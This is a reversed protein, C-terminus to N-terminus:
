YRICNDIFISSGDYPYSMGNMSAVPNCCSECAVSNKRTFSSDSQKQLLFRSPSILGCPLISLLVLVPPSPKKLAMHWWQPVDLYHCVNQILIGSSAVVVRPYVLSIFVYDGVRCLKSTTSFLNRSSSCFSSLIVDKTASFDDYAPCCVKRCGASQEEIQQTSWLKHLPKWFHSCMKVKRLSLPNFTAHGYLM